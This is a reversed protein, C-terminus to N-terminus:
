PYWEVFKSLYMCIHLRFRTLIYFIISDEWSTPEHGKWYIGVKNERLCSSSQKTKNQKRGHILKAQKLIGYQTSDIAHKIKHLDEKVSCSAKPNRWAAAHIPMEMRYM